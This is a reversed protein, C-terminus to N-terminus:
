RPNVMSVTDRVKVWSTCDPAMTSSVERRMRNRLRAASLRSFAQIDLGGTLAFPVFQWFTTIDSARYNPGEKEAPLLIAPINSFSAQHQTPETTALAFATESRTRKRCLHPVLFVGQCVFSTKDTKYLVAAEITDCTRNCVDGHPM